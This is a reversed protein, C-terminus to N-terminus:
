LTFTIFRLSKPFTVDFHDQIESLYLIIYPFTRILKPQFKTMAYFIKLLEKTDLVKSTWHLRNSILYKLGRFVLSKTNIFAGTFSPPFVIGMIKDKAPDCGAWMYTRQLIADRWKVADISLLCRLPKGTSGSTSAVRYITGKPPIIDQFNKKVEDKSLIPIKSVDELSKIDSPTIRAKKFKRKYLPINNYAYWVVQKLKKLQFNKLERLKFWQSRQLFNFEQDIYGLRLQRIQSASLIRYYNKPLLKLLASTVEQDVNFNPM